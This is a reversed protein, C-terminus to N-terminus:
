PPSTVAGLRRALSVAGTDGLAAGEALQAAFEPGLAKRAAAEAARTREADPGFETPATHSARLAGILQAVDRHRGTRSLAEILARIAIWLQTWAGLGHWHDLLPGIRRTMEAPDGRRAATTLLTHRAVGLVFTADVESALEVARELHRTADPSGIQALREGVAFAAWAAASPSGMQEALEASEHGHRAADDHRGAYASTITLDLVGMLEAWRDGAAIALDRSHACHALAGTMDGRFALVNGLAEWAERASTPEGAAEAVAFATRCRAEAEGLNGRQWSSMAAYGLLRALLPHAAAGDDSPGGDSPRVAALAEDVLRVLDVRAQIYAQDALVIGLRLQEELPGNTCLWAHARRLESLHATFRRIETAETPSEHATWVQEAFGVAWAAHRRRLVPAAPDTALRSRGFARLTELLGFTVPEQPSRVVLSRDVLDPLCGTTGCVATIAAPEVSGAFTALQVFLDRQAEDLLGVYSWEVVERLSRHRPM